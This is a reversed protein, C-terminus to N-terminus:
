DSDTRELRLSEIGDVTVVLTSEVEIAEIQASSSIGELEVQLGDILLITRDPLTRRAMDHVGRERDAAKRPILRLEALLRDLQVLEPQSLNARITRYGMYRDKGRKVIHDEYKGALLREVALYLGLCRRLVDSDTGEESTTGERQAPHSLEHALLGLLAAEHWKKVSSNCVIDIGDHLNEWSVSAFASTKGYRVRYESEALEPYAAQVLRHALGALEENSVM